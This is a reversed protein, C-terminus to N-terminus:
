TSVSLEVRTGEGPSSDITLEAAMATARRALSNLGQGRSVTAPDFGCGNDRIAVILQNRNLTIMVSLHSAHAHRAVNTVAEKFILLVHRRRDAPLSLRDLAEAPPADFEVRLGEFDLMTFATQRMRDVLDSPRDTDPGIAWVIDSM